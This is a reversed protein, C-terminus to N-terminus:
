NLLTGGVVIFDYDTKILQDPNTFLTGLVTRTVALLVTPLLLHIRAM